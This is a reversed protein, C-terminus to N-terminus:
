SGDTVLTAQHYCLQRKAAAYAGSGEKQDITGFIVCMKGDSKRKARRVEGFGGKGLVELFEYNEHINRRAKFGHHDNTDASESGTTRLALKGANAPVVTPNEAGSATSSSTCGM